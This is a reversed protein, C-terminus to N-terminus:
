GAAEMEAKLLSPSVDKATFAEKVEAVDVGFTGAGHDKMHSHFWTYTEDEVEILETEARVARAFDRAHESDEWTWSKEKQNHLNNFFVRCATQATLNETEGEQGDRKPVTIPEDWITRIEDRREIYRM